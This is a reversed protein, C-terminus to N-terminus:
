LMEGTQRCAFIWLKFSIDVKGKSFRMTLAVFFLYTILILAPLICLRTRSLERAVPNFDNGNEDFFKLRKTSVTHELLKLPSTYIHPNSRRSCRFTGEGLGETTNQLIEPECQGLMQPFSIVTQIVDVLTGPSPWKVIEIWSSNSFTIYAAADSLSIGDADSFLLYSFIYEFVFITTLSLGGYALAMWQKFSIDVKSKWVRLGLAM